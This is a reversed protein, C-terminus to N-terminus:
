HRTLTQESDAIFPNPVESMPEDADAPAYDSPADFVYGFGNRRRSWGRSLLWKGVRYSSISRGSPTLDLATRLASSQVTSTGKALRSLIGPLLDDITDYITGDGARMDATNHALVAQSAAHCMAEYANIDLCFRDRAEALIQPLELTWRADIPQTVRVPMFRRNGTEDNNLEYKNATGILVFRRPHPTSDREYLDRYIDDNNTAWLKVAETDKRGHGSMEALEAIWASRAARSMKDAESFEIQPVASCGLALAMAKVFRFSKGVGQDGILVPIVGQMVGPQLQRMVIAAFLAQSTHTLADCAPAGCVDALLSDVRPIGDWTPLQDVAERWPDYANDAAVWIVAQKYNEEKLGHCGLRSMATLAAAMEYVPLGETTSTAKNYRITFGAEQALAALATKANIAPTGRKMPEPYDICGELRLAAQMWADLRPTMQERFAYFEQDKFSFVGRRGDQVTVVAKNYHRPELDDRLADAPTACAEGAYHEWDHLVEAIRRRGSHEFALYSDLALQKGDRALIAATAMQEALGDDWGLSKARAKHWEFAVRNAQAKARHKANAMATEAQRLQIQKLPALKSVDIMGNVAHPTRGPGVDRARVVWAQDEPIIRRVGDGLVPAAEFMIRQTQYISADSLQRLLLAGSKSVKVYGYGALWQDRQLRKALEPIHQGDAVAVYVHVGRLNRGGVYSSSSPRAVRLADKLWPSCFELASLVADVSRYEAGADVDVDIPFLAPGQPWAFADTARAVGGLQLAQKRTLLPTDGHLCVGCTIAQNPALGALGAQLDTVDNIHVRRATGTAMNAITSAKLQGQELTFEKTLPCHDSTLLTFPISM